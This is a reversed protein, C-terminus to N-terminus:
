KFISQWFGKKPNHKELRTILDEINKKWKPYLEDNEEWLERLESKSGIVKKLAKIALPILNDVKLGSNYKGFNNVNAEDHEDTDTRFTTGNLLNDIFAASVLAAYADTYDIYGQQVMEFSTRFFYKSDAKIADEFEYATDDDFIGYDWAGM